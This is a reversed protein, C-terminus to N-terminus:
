DFKVASTLRIKLFCFLGLVSGFSPSLPSFPLLTTHKSRPGRVVKYVLKVVISKQRPSPYKSFVLPGVFTRFDVMESIKRVNLHGTIYIFLHWIQSNLGVSVSRVHFIGYM